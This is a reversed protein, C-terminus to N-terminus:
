NKYKKPKKTKKDYIMNIKKSFKNKNEISIKINHFNFINKLLM